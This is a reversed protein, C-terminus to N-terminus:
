TEDVQCIDGDADKYFGLHLGATAQTGAMLEARLSAADSDIVYQYIERIDAADEAASEAATTAAELAAALSGFENYSDEDVGMPAREVMLTFNMSSLRQDGDTLTIDALCPGAVVLMQDTYTAKVTGDSQIEASGEVWKRDPKLVRMKATLSTSISIKTGDDDVMTVVVGSANKDGQKAYAVAINPDGNVTLTLNTFNETM